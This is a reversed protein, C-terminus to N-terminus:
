LVSFSIRVATPTLVGGLNLASVVSTFAFALLLSLLSKGVRGDSPTQVEPVKWASRSFLRRPGEVDAKIQLQPFLLGSGLGAM